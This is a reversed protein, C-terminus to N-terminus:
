PYGVSKAREAWSYRYSHLTVGAIGLRHCRKKFQKFRDGASMTAISPFLPGNAPLDQLIASVIPGFHLRAVTGTKRRFFGITKQEWDVDEGTLTALDTQAAEL